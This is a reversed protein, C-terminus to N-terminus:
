FYLRIGSLFSWGDISNEVSFLGDENESGADSMQFYEIGAMLKLRQQFIHYNIGVYLANYSDGQGAAAHEEYRDNFALGYQDRSSAYNYRFALQLMDGPIFVNFAADWTPLFTFGWLDSVTNLGRAATIDMGMGFRGLNGHHWLSIIHEYPEFANNETNGNNYLYDIHIIGKNYFLAAKRSIGGLIAFGGNFQTFEKEISGSFIGAHYSWNKYEGENYLGFVEAPM